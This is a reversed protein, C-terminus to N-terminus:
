LCVRLRRWLREPRRRLARPVLQASLEKVRERWRKQRENKAESTEKYTQRKSAARLADAAMAFHYLRGDSCKVFDRLAVARINSWRKGAGSFGALIRDDDPLSAPPSQCM